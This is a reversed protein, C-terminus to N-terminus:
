YVYVALGLCETNDEADQIIIIASRGKSLVCILQGVALLVSQYRPPGVVIYVKCM